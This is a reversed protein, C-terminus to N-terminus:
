IARSNEESDSIKIRLKECDESRASSESLRGPSQGETHDPETAATGDLRLLPKLLYRAPAFRKYDCDSDLDCDSCSCDSDSCDSGLCDSYACPTAIRSSDTGDSQTNDKADSHTVCGDVAKSQEQSGPNAVLSVIREWHRDCRRNYGEGCALATCRRLLFKGELQPTPIFAHREEETTPPSPPVPSLFRCDDPQGGIHFM